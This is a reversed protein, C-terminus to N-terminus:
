ILKKIIKRDISDEFAARFIIVINDQYLLVIEQYLIYDDKFDIVTLFSEPPIRITEEVIREWTTGKRKACCLHTERTYYWISGITPEKSM